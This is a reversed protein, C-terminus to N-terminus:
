DALGVRTMVKGKFTVLTTKPQGCADCEKLCKKLSIPRVKKLNFPWKMFGGM